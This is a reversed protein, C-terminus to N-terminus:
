CFSCSLLADKGRYGTHTPIGNPSSSPLLYGETGYRHLVDKGVQSHQM